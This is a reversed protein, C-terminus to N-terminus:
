HRYFTASSQVIRIFADLRAMVLYLQEVTHALQYQLMFYYRLHIENVICKGYRNGDSCARVTNMNYTRIEPILFPKHDPLLLEFSRICESAKM